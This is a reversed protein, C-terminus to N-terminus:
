GAGEGPLVYRPAAYALASPKTEPGSASGCLELQDREGLAYIIQPARGVTCSPARNSFTVTRSTEHATQVEIGPSRWHRRQSRAELRIKARQDAEFLDVAGSSVASSDASPQMAVM